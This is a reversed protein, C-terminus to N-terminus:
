KEKKCTDEAPLYTEVIKGDVEERTWGDNCLEIKKAPSHIQILVFALTAIAVGILIFIVGTIIDQKNM